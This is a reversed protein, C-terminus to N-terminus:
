FINLLVLILLTMPDALSSYTGGNYNFLIFSAGTSIIDLLDKVGICFGGPEPLIESIFFSSIM